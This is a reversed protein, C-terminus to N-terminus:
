RRRLASRLISNVTVLGLMARATTGKLRHGKAQVGCRNEESGADKKARPHERQANTENDNRKCVTFLWDRV